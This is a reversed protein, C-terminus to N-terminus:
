DIIIAEDYFFYKVKIMDKKKKTTALTQVM